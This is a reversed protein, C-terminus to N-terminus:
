QIYPTFHGLEQIVDTKLTLLFRKHRNPARNVKKWKGFGNFMCTHRQSAKDFFM